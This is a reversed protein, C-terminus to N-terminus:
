RVAADIAVAVGDLILELGFAFDHDVADPAPQQSPSEFVDSAFLEAAEPFHEPDVLKALTRGYDREVQAQNRRTERQRQEFQQALVSAHRVYGGVLNLIGVKAGWDLGTGRLVRLMADMWGIANPGQPPGAIPLQAHWPHQAYMARQALAWQRVGARWDDDVDLEPAAGTALDAMLEFLEDKSGVHRYLSMKTFGLVQAVKPLTVGSLGDRDALDVATRVVREVDLAAPRGLRLGTPLRWLRSLEAPVKEEAM